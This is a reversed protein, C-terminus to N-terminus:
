PGRGFPTRAAGSIRAAAISAGSNREGRRGPEGPIDGVGGRDAAPERGELAPVAAKRHRKEVPRAARLNGDVDDARHRVVEELVVGVGVPAIRRRGLGVGREGVRAGRDRLEQIAVRGLDREALVHRRQREVERASEAAGPSRAVLDDDRLEVVVGIDVGPLSQLALPPDRDSSDPHTGLRALEVFLIELARDARPRLEHRDAPGRVRESRDVVDLPDATERPIGAREGEDVRDM